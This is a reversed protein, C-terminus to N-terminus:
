GIFDDKQGTYFGSQNESGNKYITQINRYNFQGDNSGRDTTMVPVDDLYIGKMM